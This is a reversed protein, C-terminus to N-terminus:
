AMLAPRQEEVPQWQRRQVREESKKAGYSGTLNAPSFFCYWDLRKGQTSRELRIRGAIASALRDACAVVLVLGIGLVFLTTFGM